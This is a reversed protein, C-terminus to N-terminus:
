FIYMTSTVFIFWHVVQSTRLFSKINENAETTKIRSKGVSFVTNAPKIAGYIKESTTMTM